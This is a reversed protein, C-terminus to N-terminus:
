LAYVWEETGSYYTEDEAIPDPSSGRQIPTSERGDVSITQDFLRVKARNRMERANNEVSAVARTIVRWAEIDSAGGFRGGDVVRECVVVETYSAPKATGLAKLGSLTYANAGLAPTPTNLAAIIATVNQQESSM